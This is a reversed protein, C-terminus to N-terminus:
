GVVRPIAVPLSVRTAPFLPMAALPVPTVSCTVIGYAVHMHTLLLLVLPLCYCPLDRICCPYPVAFAFGTRICYPYAICLGMLLMPICYCALDMHLMSICYGHRGQWGGEKNISYSLTICESSSVSLAELSSPSFLPLSYITAAPPFHFTYTHSIPLHLTFHFCLALSGRALRALALLFVRAHANLALINCPQAPMPTYAVSTQM